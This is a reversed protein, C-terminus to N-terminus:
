EAQHSDALTYCYPRLALSVKLPNVTTFFNSDGVTHPLKVFITGLM